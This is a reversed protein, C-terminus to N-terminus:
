KNDGYGGWQTRYWNEKIIRRKDRERRPLWKLEEHTWRPDYHMSKKGKADLKALAFDVAGKEEITRTRMYVAKLLADQLKQSPQISLDALGSALRALDFASLDGVFESVQYEVEAAIAASWGDPLTLGGSTPADAATVGVEPDYSSNSSSYISGAACVFQALDPGYFDQLKFEAATLIDQWHQQQPTHRLNSLSWLLGSLEQTSLQQLQACAQQVAASMWQQTPTYDVLSLQQLLQCADTAQLQQRHPQMLSMLQQMWRQSPPQASGAATSVLSLGEQMICNSSCAVM